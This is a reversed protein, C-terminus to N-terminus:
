SYTGVVKDIGGVRAEIIEAVRYIEDADSVTNDFSLLTSLSIVSRGEVTSERLEIRVPKTRNKAEHKVVFFRRPGSGQALASLRRRLEIVTM